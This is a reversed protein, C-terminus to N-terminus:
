KGNMNGLARLAKIVMNASQKKKFDFDYRFTKTAVTVHYTGHSSWVDADNEVVDGFSKRIEERLAAELERAPLQSYDKMREGQKKERNLAPPMARSAAVRAIGKM